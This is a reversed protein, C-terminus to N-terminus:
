VAASPEPAAEAVAPPTVAEPAKARAVRRAGAQKSASAALSPAPPAGRLLAAGHWAAATGAMTLAAALALFLRRRGLAFRARPRARELTLDASRAVLEDDGSRVLGIRDFDTGVQHALALTPNAAMARELALRETESLSGQRARVSLDEPDTASPASVRTM